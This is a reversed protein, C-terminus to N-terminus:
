EYSASADISNGNSLSVVVTYVNGQVLTYSQQFEITLSNTGTPLQINTSNVLPTGSIKVNVITIPLNNRITLNLYYHGNSYYIVADYVQYAEVLPSLGGFLGFIFGVVALTMVVAAILIILHVIGNSLGRM